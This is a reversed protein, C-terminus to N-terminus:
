IYVKTEGVRVINGAWQIRRWKVIENMYIKMLCGLRRYEQQM